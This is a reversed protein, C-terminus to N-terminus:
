RVPASEMVRVCLSERGRVIVGEKVPPTRDIILRPLTPALTRLAINVEFRALKAGICYHAGGGFAVHPNITRDIDLQDPNDFADPDRNASGLLLVVMDGPALTTGGVDIPEAHPIRKTVQIPSDYRLLEEVTRNLLETSANDSVRERLHEHQPELLALLGNGLLNATTEHGAVLLLLCNRAIEDGSLQGAAVLDTLLGNTPKRKRRAIEDRFYELLDHMAHQGIVLSDETQTFEPDLGRALAKSWSRVQQWDTDDLGLIRCIVDIPLPYALEAILDLSEGETLRANVDRVRQDIFPELPHVADNSFAEALQGRIRTHEPPDLFLFTYLDKLSRAATPDPDDELSHRLNRYDVSCRPDRLLAFCDRHRSLVWFGFPSRHVPDEDRLRRYTPYPDALFTPDLPNYTLDTSTSM